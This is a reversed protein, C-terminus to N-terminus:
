GRPSSVASEVHSVVRNHEDPIESPGVDNEMGIGQSETSGGEQKENNAHSTTHVCDKKAHNLQKYIHPHNGWMWVQFPEMRGLPAFPVSMPFLRVGAGEGSGTARSLINEVAPKCLESRPPPNKKLAVLANWSHAFLPHGPRRGRTAGPKTPPACGMMGPRRKACHPAWPARERQHTAPWRAMCRGQLQSRM